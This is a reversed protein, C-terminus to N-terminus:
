RSLLPHCWDAFRPVTGLREESNQELEAVYSEVTGFDQLEIRREIRRLVTGSKYHSFDLDHDRQLLDYIREVGARIVPESKANNQVDASLEPPDNGTIASPLDEASLVVDVCGTSVAANPMGSFQASEEDEAFCRGGAEHVARLGASGDSGTGSLVVAMTRRGYAKALSHFFHDIVRSNDNKEQVKQVRLRKDEISLQMGPPRLYVHDALLPDGDRATDIPLLTNRALLEAMYSQHNPSLHQIVVFALGSRLPMRSLFRSLSQLGGASAGIGVVDTPDADSPQNDTTPDDSCSM